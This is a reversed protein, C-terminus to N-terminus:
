QACGAVKMEEIIRIGSSTGLRSAGAELMARAESWTRIGCAAKVKVTPGAYRKMLAVHKPAAGAPGFGTSTKIFDPEVNSAIQAAATIEDDTLYCTEFIVKCCIGAKRAADKMASMEAEIYSYDHEKLKGVNLVYDFEQCGDLIAARVEELKGAITLQGLPFAIAAGTLVRSSELLKRCLSVPFPNVAVSCFGYEKAESCLKIFDSETAYPHLNTHDIMAAVQRITWEM